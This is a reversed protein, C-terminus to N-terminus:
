VQAKAQPASPIAILPKKGGSQKSPKAIEEIDSEKIMGWIKWDEEKGSVIRKQIVIYDTVKKETDSQKDRDTSRLRQLSRIKVVHQRFATEKLDPIVVARSSMIRPFATYRRLAWGSM